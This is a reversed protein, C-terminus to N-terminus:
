LRLVGQEPLRFLLHVYVEFLRPQVDILDVTPMTHQHSNSISSGQAQVVNKKGVKKTPQPEPTSSKDRLASLEKAFFRSRQALWAFRFVYDVKNCGVVIKVLDSKHELYPDIEDFPELSWDM